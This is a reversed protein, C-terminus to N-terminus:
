DSKNYLIYLSCKCKIYRKETVWKATVSMIGYSILEKLVILVHM